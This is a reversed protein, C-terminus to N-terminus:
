VAVADRELPRCRVTRDRWEFGELRLANPDHAEFEEALWTAFAVDVDVPLGILLDRSPAIFLRPRPGFLREIANPVLIATSAWGDRSQFVTTPVGGIPEGVLDYDTADRARQRLNRLARRTLAELDVPWDELQSAAVRAFALGLDIGFGVTVGPPVLAQAPPEIEYAFPRAREFVPLIDDAVEDWDISHGALPGLSRRGQGNSM